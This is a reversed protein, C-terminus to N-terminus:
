AYINQNNAQHRPPFWLLPLWLTQNKWERKPGKGGVINGLGTGPIIRDEQAMNSHCGQFGKEIWLPYLLIVDPLSPLNPSFQFSYLSSFSYNPHM